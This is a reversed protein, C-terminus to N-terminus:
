PRRKYYKLICGLRRLSSFRITAPYLSCEESTIPRPIESCRLPRRPRQAGATAVSAQFRDTSYSLDDPASLWNMTRGCIAEMNYTRAGLRTLAAISPRSGCPMPVVRRQRSARRITAAAGCGRGERVTAGYRFRTEAFGDRNGLFRGSVFAGFNGSSDPQGNASVLRGRALEGIRPGLPTGVLPHDAIKRIPHESISRDSWCSQVV